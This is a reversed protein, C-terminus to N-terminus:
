GGRKVARLAMRLGIFAGYAAILAVIVSTVGLTGDTIGTTAGTVDIVAHAPLSVMAIALSAILAKFYRM